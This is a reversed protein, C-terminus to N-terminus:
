EPKGDRILSIRKGDAHASVATSRAVNILRRSAAYTYRWPEQYRTNVAPVPFNFGAYIDRLGESNFDCSMKSVDLDWHGTVKLSVVTMEESEQLSAM